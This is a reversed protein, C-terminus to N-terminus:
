LFNLLCGQTTLDACSPHPSQNRHTECTDCRCVPKQAKTQTHQSGSPMLSAFPRASGGVACRPLQSGAAHRRPCLCSKPVVEGTPPPTPLPQTCGQTKMSLGSLGLGVAPGDGGHGTVVDWMSVFYIQVSFCFQFTCAQKPPDRKMRCLFATSTSQM